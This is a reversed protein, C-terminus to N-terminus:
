WAIQPPLRASCGSSRCTLRHRQFPGGWCGVGWHREPQAPCASLRCGPPARGWRLSPEPRAPPQSSRDARNGSGSPASATRTGRLLGAPPVGPQRQGAGRSGGPCRAGTGAAGAEGRARLPAGSGWPFAPAERGARGTGHRHREGLKGRSEELKQIQNELFLVAVGFALVALLQLKPPVMIRLLGM